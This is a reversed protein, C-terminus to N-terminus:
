PSSNELWNLLVRSGLWHGRRNTTRRARRPRQLATWCTPFRRRPLGETAYFPPWALALRKILDLGANLWFHARLRRRWLHDATDQADLVLGDLATAAPPITVAAEDTDATQDEVISECVEAFGAIKALSELAAKDGKSLAATVEGGILIQLAKEGDVGFALAALDARWNLFESIRIEVRRDLFDDRLLDSRPDEVKSEYLSFIALLPLPIEHQRERHLTGVRNVFVKLKRPTVTERQEVVYAQVIRALHRFESDKHNPLAERLLRILFSRWDSLIPPPVNFVAQFSKEFFAVPLGSEAKAHEGWYRALGSPDYPVALWFNGPTEKSDRGIKEFFTRMTAWISSAETADVRDLNDLVIVLNHDPEDTSDRVITLFLDRFELSTPEPNRTTTTRTRQRTKEVFLTAISQDQFRGRNERWFRSSLPNLTPRWLLWVTGAVLIPSLALLVGLTRLPGGGYKNFLLYGFPAAVALLAFVKGMPTLLADSSTTATDRRRTITEYEDKWAEKDAWGSSRLFNIIEHLFSRRLSEGQHAWADFLFLRNESDASNDGLEHGLLQVATSKGSGWAGTLAIARGGPETEILEAISRALREHSGFADEEAPQDALLRTPCRQQPGLTQEM